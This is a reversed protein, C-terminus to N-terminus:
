TNQKSKPLRVAEVCSRLQRLSAGQSYTGLTMGPRKHGVVLAITSEPQGAREATTIFWRRFSHFNVLSRRRGDVFVALRLKRILRGFKKVAAHSREDSHKRQGEPLEDLLFAEPDKKATRRAIIKALDPHIPVPRAAREKKLPPMSFVGKACDKVRLRCLAEIRAGTLAGLRILDEILPDGRFALLTTLEDASWAREPEEKAKTTAAGVRARPLDQQKWPNEGSFHGKNWLWHWYGSLPVLYSGISRPDLRRAKHLHESIFRGAVVRTVADVTAAIKEAALWEKLVKFARRCRLLTRGHFAKHALWEELFTELPLAQGTAIAAFEQARTDGQARAIQEARDTLLLPYQARMIAELDGSADLRRAEAAIQERWELAELLVPDQTAGARAQEITAKFEAVVPWRRARAVHVERTKLSRSLKKRGLAERLSPPIYVVAYWGQRRQELYQNSM